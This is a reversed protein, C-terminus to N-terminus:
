SIKIHNGLETSSGRTPRSNGNKLKPKRTCNGPAPRGSMISRLTKTGCYSCIYERNRPKNSSPMQNVENM